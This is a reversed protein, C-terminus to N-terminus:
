DGDERYAGQYEIPLLIAIRSMLQTTLSGIQSKSLRGNVAPLKFAQGINITVGSRKWPWNVGKIKDSGIIGIPLIPVEMKSAIVASGSQALILGGERSRRGEPFMGLVWGKNLMDKARKLTERKDKTTGRRRVPFVHAWWLVPRLFLSSFLEEKAMFCIWRPCIVALLVPDFFNLHNAAIILPGALPVNERGRVEWSLFTRCFFGLVALVARQSLTM